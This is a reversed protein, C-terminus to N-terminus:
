FAVIMILILDVVFCSQNLRCVRANDLYFPLIM